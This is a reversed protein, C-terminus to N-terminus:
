FRPLDGGRVDASHERGYNDTAIVTYHTNPNILVDQSADFYFLLEGEVPIDEVKRNTLESELCSSETNRKLQETMKFTPRKLEEGNPPTVRLHWQTIVAPKDLSWVKINTIVGTPLPQSAGTDSPFFKIGTVIMQLQSGIIDRATARGLAREVYYVITDWLAGVALGLAFAFVYWSTIFNWVMVLWELNYLQGWGKQEAWNEINFGFITVIFLTILAAAGRALVYVLAGAGIRKKSTKPWEFVAGGKTGLL